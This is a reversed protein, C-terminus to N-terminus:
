MCAYSISVCCNLGKQIGQGPLYLGAYIAVSSSKAVPIQCRYIGQLIQSANRIHLILTNKRGSFYTNLSSDSAVNSKNPLSWASINQSEKNECSENFNTVCLLDTKVAKDLEMYSNNSYCEGNLIFHVDILFDWAYALKM